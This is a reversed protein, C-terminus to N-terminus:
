SFDRVGPGLQVSLYAVSQLNPFLPPLLSLPLYPQELLLPSLHIDVHLSLLRKSALCRLTEESLTNTSCLHSLKADKSLGEILYSYGRYKVLNNIWKRPSLELFATFADKSWLHTPYGLLSLDTVHSYPLLTHLIDTGTGLLSWQIRHLQPLQHSRSPITPPTSGPHYLLEKLNHVQELLQSFPRHHRSNDYDMGIDLRKIMIAIRPSKIIVDVFNAFNRSSIIGRDMLHVSKFLVPQALPTFRTSVLSFRKLDHISLFSIIHLITEIPLSDM